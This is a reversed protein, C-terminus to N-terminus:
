VVSKRDTAVVLADIQELLAALDDFGQVGLPQALANARDLDRDFIGVLIAGENAILKKAHNGGFVGAGAVGVRVPERAQNHPLPAAM